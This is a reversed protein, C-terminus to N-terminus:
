PTAPKKAAAKAAGIKVTKAMMKGDAEAYSVTATDKETQYTWALKAQAPDMALVAFDDIALLEASLYRRLVRDLRGHLEAGLLDNLLRPATVILYELVSSSSPRMPRSSCHAPLGAASNAAPWTGRKVYCRASSQESPPAAPQDGVGPKQAPYRQMAKLEGRPPTM